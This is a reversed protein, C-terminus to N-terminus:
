LPKMVNQKPSPPRQLEKRWCHTRQGTSELKAQPATEPGARAEEKEIAKAESKVKPAPLAEGLEVQKTRVRKGEQIKAM